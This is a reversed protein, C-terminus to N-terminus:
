RGDVIFSRLDALAEDPCDATVGHGCKPYLRLTAVGNPLSDAIVQSFVHPTIPDEEGAMILTPCTVRKLKSRFDMHGHENRPGNFWVAPADNWQVRSIWDMSSEKSYQYYPVCVGRYQARLEATPQEWYRESITRVEPGGLREFADYIAAFKVKAATSILILKSAHGPHRIAYSQAVFGGFSTGLVIPKDIGLVNCFEALDDGWQALNWTSQDCAASRGNGRHDYYVIQAIDSLQSFFPKYVSHDAGPGGHSLVLTPKERMHAGNPVSSAGEVDFYLRAGNVTVYM